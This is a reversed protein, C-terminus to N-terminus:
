ICASFNFAFTSSIVTMIIISSPATTYIIQLGGDCFKFFHAMGYKVPYTAHRGTLHLKRKSVTKFADFPPSYEVVANLPAEVM